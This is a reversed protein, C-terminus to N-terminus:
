GGVLEKEREPLDWDNVMQAILNIQGEHYSINWYAMLPLEYFKKELGPGFPLTISEGWKDAPFAEIAAALKEIGAHCYPFAKEVTDLKAREARLAAFDLPPVTQTELISAALYSLSGCEVVQDLASRGIGLPQYTIKDGLDKAVKELSAFGTRNLYVLLSPSIEM